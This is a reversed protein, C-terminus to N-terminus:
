TPPQTPRTSNRPQGFDETWYSHYRINGADNALYTYGVGIEQFKCNLINRRHWDDPPTENFWADVVVEPSPYGAAINEGASSYSYGANQLRKALDSGDSGTHSFYDNAAMDDTHGQAATQLQANPTLAACGNQQRYMNTRDIIRPIFDDADPNSSAAATSVFAALMASAAFMVFVIWLTVPNSKPM